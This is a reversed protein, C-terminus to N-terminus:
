LVGINYLGLIAGAGLIHGFSAAALVAAVSLGGFLGSAPMEPGVNPYKIAFKALAIALINCIVMVIATSPNWSHTGSVAALLASDLM